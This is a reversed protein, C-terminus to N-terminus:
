VFGEETTWLRKTLASRTHLEDLIDQNTESDEVYM